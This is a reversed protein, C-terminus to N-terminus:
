RSRISFPLRQAKVILAFSGFLVMSFLLDSLLTNKFFPIAAVYCAILGNFTLPYLSNSYWVGFNSIAFFLISSAACSSFITFPRINNKLIMGILTILFYSAYQWYFGAYFLVWHGMLIQSLLVDGLWVSFLTVSVAVLRRHFHAGCFLAVADMASFNPLHGLLPPIAVRSLVALMVLSLVINSSSTPHIQACGQFKKKM